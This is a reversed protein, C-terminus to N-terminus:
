IRRIEKKIKDILSPFSNDFTLEIKINGPEYIEKVETIRADMTVGWKKNQLTVMDGLDYDKQYVLRSKTLAQGEVYVEQEHEELEVQGEEEMDAIIDAEPRPKREENDDEEETDVNATMFLEYREFGESDGVYSYYKEKEEDPIDDQDLKNPGEVVVANRYELESESYSMQGLTEFEPSFIAPPLDSQNTTLHRGENVVFKYQQNDRDIVINWGLGSQKSVDEMVEHLPEYDTDLKISKGREKNEAKIINDFKRKDDAPNIANIDMLVHMVSEADYEMKSPYALRQALWNKLPLARIVWNETEKGHEDLEIEKYRIVYGKHLQDHPFLIIGRQLKDVHKKYRSIRMEIDGIGHWKRTLQLSEYGDLEGLLNFDRTM